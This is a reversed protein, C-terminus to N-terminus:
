AKFADVRAALDPDHLLALREAAARAFRLTLAKRRAAPLPTEGSPREIVGGYRDALVLGTEEPLLEIPFDPAVAFFFRDCYELYEPWKIDARFDAKSSKIEIIWIAGRDSLGIVDARRGCALTFEPITVLGHARLLRVVGRCIDSAADSQRRDERPSVTPAFPNNTLVTM